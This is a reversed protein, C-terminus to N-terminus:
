HEVNAVRFLAATDPRLARIAGAPTFHSHDAYLLSGDMIFYCRAKVCLNRRLALLPVATQTTVDKLVADVSTERPNALASRDPVAFNPELGRQIMARAPIGALLAARPPEFGWTVTDEIVLVRKGASRLAAISKLLGARLVQQPSPNEKPQDALFYSKRTNPVWGSWLGALVVTKIQPHAIVWDFSKRVYDACDQAHNAYISDVVRVGHLPACASKALIAHGWGQERALVRIAPGLAAAHSDGILAIAPRNAPLNVCPSEAYLTNGSSLCLDEHTENVASDVGGPKPGFRQPLGSSVIMLIPLSLVVACAGGYRFLAKRDTMALRRFPQEILRWSAVALGLSLITAGLMVGASPEEMLSLKLFTFLPWHWLYWSYSVHGIGVMLRNSLLRRNIFSRETMLLLVTGMVPLAARWGPWSTNHDFMVTSLCIAALGVISLASTARDSLQANRGARSVALLAGAGIEWARPPLLYFGIPGWKWTAACCVVFSGAVLIALVLLITRQTFRALMIMLFPLLIYFQEEVGLSWTMLMPQNNADPHFYNVTNYFYMNSLAFVVAVSSKALTALEGPSLLVLGAALSVTIVALLAPLIRQARRAYFHAFSFNGSKVGQYIIGTILFGSIVFFIDVGVFGSSLPFGAHFLVVSAVAIARLGDIDPRYGEVGARDLRQASLVNSTTAQGVGSM